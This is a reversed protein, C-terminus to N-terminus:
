GPTTATVITFGCHNQTVFQVLSQAAKECWSTQHRIKSKRIKTMGMCAHVWTKDLKTYFHTLALLSSCPAHVAFIYSYCIKIALSYLLLMDEEQMIMRLCLRMIQCAPKHQDYVVCAHLSCLTNVILVASIYVLPAPEIYLQLFDCPIVILKVICSHIFSVNVMCPM